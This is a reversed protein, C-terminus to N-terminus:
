QIAFGGARSCRRFVSQKSLVVRQAHCTRTMARWGQFVAADLTVLTVLCCRRPRCILGCAYGLWMEDMYHGYITVTKHSACQRTHRPLRLIGRTIQLGAVEPFQVVKGLEPPQVSRSEPSDM